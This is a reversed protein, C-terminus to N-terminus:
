IEGSSLSKGADLKYAMGLTGCKAVWIGEELIPNRLLRAARHLCKTSDKFGNGLKFPDCSPETLM